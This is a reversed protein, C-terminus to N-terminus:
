QYDSKAGAAIATHNKENKAESGGLKVLLRGALFNLMGGCFPFILADFESSSLNVSLM